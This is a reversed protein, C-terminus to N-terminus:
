DTSPMAHLMSLAMDIGFQNQPSAMVVAINM